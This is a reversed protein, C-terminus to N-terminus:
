WIFYFGLLTTLPDLVQRISITISVMTRNGEIKKGGERETIEFIKLSLVVHRTNKYVILSITFTDLKLVYM